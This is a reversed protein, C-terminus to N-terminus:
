GRNQRPHSQECGRKENARTPNVSIRIQKGMLKQRDEISSKVLTLCCILTLALLIVDAAEILPKLPFLFGAIVSALFLPFYLLKGKSGVLYVACYSGYYYQCLVTSLAFAFVSGLLLMEGLRGMNDSFARNVLSIGYLGSGVAGSSLLALATLTCIIVTDFFVEAIGFLGRVHATDADARAHALTSTGAGAENSLLGRAFGERVAKSSLFGFFGGVGARLKLADKFILIIVSPLTRINAFVIFLCCGSYIVAAIPIVVTVASEIREAGGLVTYIVAAIVPIFFIRPNSIGMSRACESIANTQVASGLTLTLLACLTAYVVSIRKGLTARILALIGSGDKIEQRQAGYIEAYKLASAFLASILMWLVSGAGGVALGVAVGVINGVGLTGALALCLAGATASRDESSLMEKFCRIPHLIFFGRMKLLFYGGTVTIIVPLLNLIHM